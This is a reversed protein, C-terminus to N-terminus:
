PYSSKNSSEAGTEQSTEGGPSNLLKTIAKSFTQESWSHTLPYVIFGSTVNNSKLLQKLVFHNNWHGIEVQGGLRM